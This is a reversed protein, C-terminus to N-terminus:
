INSGHITGTATIDGVFKSTGKVDLDGTCHMDGTFTIDDTDIVANGGDLKMTTGGMTLTVVPAVINVSAGGKINVTQSGTIDVTEPTVKIETDQIKIDLTSSGRDYSITTGDSFKVMRVDQSSAPPTIEGAYWSGIIFGDESGSPNFLCVVDEGVDPLWYDSNDQTNRQVIPLDASVMGDEDDFVVRATCAAPNVSSVEGIRMIRNIKEDTDDQQLFDAMDINRM